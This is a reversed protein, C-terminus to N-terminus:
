ASKREEFVARVMTWTAPQGCGPCLPFVADRAIVLEQSCCQPVYVGTRECTDGTRM